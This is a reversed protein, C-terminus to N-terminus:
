AASRIKSLLQELEAALENMPLVAVATKPFLVLSGKPTKSHLAAYVRRRIKHRLVSSNAVKNPVVVAFAPRAGATLIASFHESFFRKGRIAGLEASRLRRARPLM